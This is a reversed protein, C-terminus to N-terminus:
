LVAEFHNCVTKQGDFRLNAVFESKRYRQLGIDYIKWIEFKLIQQDLNSIQFTKGTM